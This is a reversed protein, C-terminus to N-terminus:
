SGQKSGLVGEGKCLISVEPLSGSRLNRPGVYGMLEIEAGWYDDRHTIGAKIYRSMENQRDPDITQTRCSYLSHAKIARDRYGLGARCYSQKWILGDLSYVVTPLTVRWVGVPGLLYRPSHSISLHLIGACM